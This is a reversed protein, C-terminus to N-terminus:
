PSDGSPCGRGLYEREWIEQTLARRERSYALWDALCADDTLLRAAVVDEPAAGHEIAWQRLRELHDRFPCPHLWNGPAPRGYGYEAQWRRIAQFFPAEWVDNLTGGRAYIEHLNVPAYPAFVCPSVRGEWDVHLYGRDRGAAICGEVLPGHNGFDLLFLRKREVVEWSRRWLSAVQQPTPRAEATPARGILTYQFMFAYFAGLEDFFLDLFPDSLVEESNERTVTVSIGVPVGARRLTHMAALARDFMGRGRRADTRERLGEVSIAPTLNGLRALRAAVADNILTGNTFMLYLFDPHREVLDLLDKGESRYLLPEGGSFVILRVGWLVKAEGLLRDLLSWGLRSAPLEESGRGSDAYCGPCHLNCAHEPSIVLFWPPLSGHQARFRQVSPASELPLALARGWLRAIIRLVAPSISGQALAREVSHLVARCIMQRQRAIVGWPPALQPPRAIQAALWRDAVGLAIRRVPPLTLLAAADELLWDGVRGALARAAIRRAHMADEGGFPHIRPLAGSLM